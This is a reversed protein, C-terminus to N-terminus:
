EKQVTLTDSTYFAKAKDVIWYFASNSIILSGASISQSVKNQQYFGIQQSSPFDPNKFNVSFNLYADIESGPM